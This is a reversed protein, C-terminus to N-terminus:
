TSRLITKILILSQKNGFVTRMGFINRIIQTFFGNSLLVAPSTLYKNQNEMVLNLLASSWQTNPLSSPAQRTALSASVLWQDININM